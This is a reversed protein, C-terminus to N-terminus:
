HLHKTKCPSHLAEQRHAFVGSDERERERGGGGGGERGDERM